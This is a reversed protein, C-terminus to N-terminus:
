SNAVAVSAQVRAQLGESSARIIYLLTDEDRGDRRDEIDASVVLELDVNAPSM